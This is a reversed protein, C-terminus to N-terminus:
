RITKKFLLYEYKTILIIPIMILENVEKDSLKKIGQRRLKTM